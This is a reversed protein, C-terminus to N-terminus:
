GRILVTMIGRALCYVCVWQDSGGTKRGQPTRRPTVTVKLVASSPVNLDHECRWCSVREDEDLSNRRGVRETRSRGGSIVKM